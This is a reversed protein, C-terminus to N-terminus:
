DAKLYEEFQEKTNKGYGYKGHFEKHCDKCMVIGNNIDYRQNEHIDYSNIHHVVNHGGRKSCKCCTYNDRERIYKRWETDLSTKREKIRQDKTRNPNWSPNKDGRLGERGKNGKAINSARCNACGNRKNRKIRVTLQNYSVEGFSGCSCKYKMKTQANIYEQELLEFGVSEFANKVEEYSKKNKEQNKKNTCSPCRHGERFHGYKTSYIKGCPCKFDYKFNSGKYEDSLFTYGFSSVYEKVEELTFKRLM